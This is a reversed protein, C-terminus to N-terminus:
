EYEQMSLIDEYSDYSDPITTIATSLHTGTVFEPHAVCEVLGKEDEINKMNRLLGALGDYRSMTETM